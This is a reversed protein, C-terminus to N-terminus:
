FMYFNFPYVPIYVYGTDDMSNSSPRNNFFVKQDYEFLNSSVPSVGAKLTGGYVHNLMVFAGKYDCDNIYYQSNVVSCATGYNDTPKSYIYM